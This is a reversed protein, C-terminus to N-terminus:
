LWKKSLLLTICGYFFGNIVGTILIALITGIDGYIAVYGAWTAQLAVSSYSGFIMLLLFVASSVCATIFWAGFAGNQSDGLRAVLISAILPPIVLGLFTLLSAVLDASNIIGVIGSTIWAEAPSAFIPMFLATIIYWIDTAPYGPVTFMAVLVFLFNLALYVIIGVIFTKIFNM